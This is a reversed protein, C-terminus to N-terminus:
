PPYSGRLELSANRIYATTAGDTARYRLQYTRTGSAPVQYDTRDVVHRQYNSSGAPVYVTEPGLVVTSGTSDYVDYEFTFGAGGSSMEFNAVVHLRDNTNRVGANVTVKVQMSSSSTSAGSRSEGFSRVLGGQSQWVNRWVSAARLKMTDDVSHYIVDGDSASSPDTDQPVLRFAARTPTTTDSQAIVGYGDTAKGEVGAGDSAGLGQVGRAASTAGAAVIGKVGFAATDTALAQLGHATAASGGQFYAGLDTASSAYVGYGGGGGSVFNGARGTGNNIGSVGHGTGDGTGQVGVGNPAGGTADVGTGSTGGGTADVGTGTGGGTVDIGAANGSPNTVVIAATTNNTDHTVYLTAGTGPNTFFVTSSVNGAQGAATLSVRDTTSSFEGAAVDLIGTSGTEVVHATEDPQDTGDSLWDVWQYVENHWFNEWQAPPKQDPEWGNQQVASPVAVKTATGIAPGGSYNTNTAWPTPSSGPKAM